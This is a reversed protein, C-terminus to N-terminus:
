SFFLYSIIMLSDDASFNVWHTLLSEGYGWHTQTTGSAYYFAPKSDGKENNCTSKTSVMMWGFSDCPDSVASHGSM